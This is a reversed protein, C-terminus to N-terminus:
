PEPTEVLQRFALETAMLTAQQARRDWEAPNCAKLDESLGAAQCVGEQNQPDLLRAVQRDYTRQFDDLYSETRGETRLLEVLEPQNEQLWELRAARVGSYGTAGGAKETM